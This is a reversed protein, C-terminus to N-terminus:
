RTPKIKQKALWDCLQDGPMPKAVYYGQVYDCGMETVLDWDQETEVGEAVVKMDLKRALLVSSELIARASTDDTAGRVFARDIKLETFPIHQLKELSSYGTGFDDISLKFRKLSLRGLIDLAVRIHEMLRSETIELTVTEPKLNLAEVQAAIANPWNLDDLADVSINLAVGLEIGRSQWNAAYQLAKQCVAQTLDRILNHEEAISVFANPAVIGKEPHLWRALAEVGVVQHTRVDIKPQFFTDLEGAAIAHSVEEASFVEVPRVTSDTSSHDYNVLLQNMKALTVPKELVGLVCLEHEIALKEVTRLIRIDEGSLLVLSGSYNQMALHRTFEIGDMEPMNLDCVVIDFAQQPQALIQLAQQGSIASQVQDIGLDNLVLTTVRHTITDDDVLLVKLKNNISDGEVVPPSTDTAALIPKNCFSEVFAVVSGAAQQLPPLLTAIEPERFDRCACELANCLSSIQTAGIGSSSSKLKHAYAELQELNNWAYAQRIDFLAKPLTSIYTTLLRRQVDMKDGVVQGLLTLDIAEDPMEDVATTSADSGTEEIAVRPMWKELAQKIADLVLPKSIVDDAGSDLCRKIDNEMASATVAIIPHRSGSAELARIQKILEHGDMEPMRIDTLLLPYNGSKWLKLAEAGTTAFDAVYGLQELQSTVLEQNVLNDEAVLIRPRDGAEMAVQSQGSDELKDAAKKAVADIRVANFRVSFTSGHGPKSDVELEGRMLEVLQKTILLGIGTGETETLEAGLRNFPEFLEGLRDPEIGPGTDEISICALGQKDLSVGIRVRGDERNYKVANSLLNLLVQKLRTTDAEVMVGQCDAPNLDITVARDTAMDKVLAICDKITAELSVMEISVEINGAELRSLDLIENILSLLHQGANFIASARAQQQQDFNQDSELLQSFGLIANLPTRLEHSMRSLFENKAQNAQEAKLQAQKLASIDQMTGISEIFNGADDYTDVSIERVHVWHGDRHRIRYIYDVKGDTNDYEHYLAEKDDPHVLQMDDDLSRFVKLFEPVTYGHIEAYEESIDLYENAVEDFRWYGLQATRAAMKLVAASEEIEKRMEGYETIDQILGIAERIKGDDDRIVIGVEKVHRVEGDKRLIRYEVEHSGREMQSDYSQRYLKRDDPHIQAVAKEWSSQSEIVENISMGFIQAYTLTCSLIRDNEYDWECYGFQALRQIANLFTERNWLRGTETESTEQNLKGPSDPM